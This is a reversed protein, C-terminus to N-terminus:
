SVAGPTRSVFPVDSGARIQDCDRQVTDWRRRAEDDTALWTAAIAAAASDGHDTLVHLEVLRDQWHTSDTSSGSFEAPPM